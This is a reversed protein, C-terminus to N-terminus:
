VLAAMANKEEMLEVWRHMAEAMCKPNRLAMEMMKSDQLATKAKKLGIHGGLVNSNM